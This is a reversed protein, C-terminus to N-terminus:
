GRDPSGCRVWRLGVVLGVAVLAALANVGVDRLDYVRSPVAAQIAEDLWGVLAAALVAFLAPHTVPRGGSRREKLAEHLLVALLGYGFLPTREAAPVGWRAPVTLVGAAVALIIWIGRTPPSSLAIGAVSVVALIFGSAFVAGALRGPGLAEVLVGGLTASSLMAVLLCAVWGWLHRERTSTTWAM